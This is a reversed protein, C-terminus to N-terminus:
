KKNTLLKKNKLKNFYNYFYTIEENSLESDTERNIIWELLKQAQTFNQIIQWQEFFDRAHKELSSKVKKSINKEWHTLSVPSSVPSDTNKSTSKKSLWWRIHQEVYVKNKAKNITQLTAAYDVSGDPLTSIIKGRFLNKATRYNNQFDEETIGLQQFKKRVIDITKHTKWHLKVATALCVYAQCVKWLTMEEFRPYTPHNM